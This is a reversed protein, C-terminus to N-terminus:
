TMCKSLRRRSGEKGRGTDTIYFKKEDLSFCLGNPEDFDDAVVTM